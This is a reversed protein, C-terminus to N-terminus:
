GAARKRGKPAPKAVASAAPKKTPKETKAAPKAKAPTEKAAPPTRASLSRRLAEMLDVVNSPPADANPLPPPTGATKSEVLARLAEAYRDRFGSPDFTGMAQAIIQRAIAVMQPTVKTKDISEFAEATDRVEDHTRLTTLLMGADRVEIAVIRERQAMVLRGLAVKGAGAMADRIVAFPEQATKGDPVLFYPEDWYLRDISDADVFQEIDILRTSEIKLAAIEDDEVTVYRDTDVEFGRVLDKRAVESGDEADYYSQKVRHLTKRNLFNFHVAEGAQTAKFLSVPCTVLSLRLHGEWSPRLAM